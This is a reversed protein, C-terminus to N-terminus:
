RTSPAEPSQIRKKATESPLEGFHNRYLSAFEGSYEIGFGCVIENISRPEEKKLERRIQNLRLARSYRKPSQNAFDQFLNNLSRVSIDLRTCIESLNFARELGDNMIAVAKHFLIRRADMEAPDIPRANELVLCVFQTTLELMQDAAPVSFAEAM